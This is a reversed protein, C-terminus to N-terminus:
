ALDIPSWVLTAFQDPWLQHPLDHGMAPFTVLRAISTVEATAMGGVPQVMADAEDRWLANPAFCAAATCTALPHFPNPHLEEPTVDGSGETDAARGDSQRM